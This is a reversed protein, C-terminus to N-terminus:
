CPWDCAKDAASILGSDLQQRSVNGCFALVPTCCESHESAIKSDLLIASIGVVVNGCGVAQSGGSRVREDILLLVNGGRVLTWPCPLCLSITTMWVSNLLSIRPVGGFHVSVGDVDKSRRCTVLASRGNAVM